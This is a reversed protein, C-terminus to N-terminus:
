ATYVSVLAAQAKIRVGNLYSITRSSSSRSKRGYELGRQIIM